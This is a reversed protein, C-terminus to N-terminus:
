LLSNIDFEETQQEVIDFEAEVATIVHEPRKDSVPAFTVKGESREIYDDLSKLQRESCNKEVFECIKTPSKIVKDYIEDDRMKMTKLRKEAEEESKWKRNGQKGKVLKYGGIKEGALMRQLALAEIEETLKVLTKLCPLMQALRDNSLSPVKSVATQVSTLDDFEAEIVSGLHNELKPCLTTGKCYACAEESPIFAEMPPMDTMNFCEAAHMAEIELHAMFEQLYEYSCTWKSFAGLRVQHIYLNIETPPDYDLKQLLKVAGCAYVLLQSNEEADVKVHRGFKLDHINLIGLVSNYAVVDATGFQGDVGFAESLDLTEEVKFFDFHGSDELVENYYQEVYRVMEDTPKVEVGDNVFSMGIRPKIGEVLCHEALSHALSGEAALENNEDGKPAVKELYLSGPCSRWRKSKSPALISHDGL